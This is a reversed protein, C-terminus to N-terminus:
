VVVDGGAPAGAALGCAGGICFGDDGAFFDGLFGGEDAGDLIELAAGPLFKGTAFRLKQFVVVDAMAESAVAVVELM